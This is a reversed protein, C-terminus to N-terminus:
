PINSVIKVIDHENSPVVVISADPTSANSWRATSDDFEISGPFYIEASRSLDKRLDAYDVVKPDRTITASAVGVLVALAVARVQIILQM